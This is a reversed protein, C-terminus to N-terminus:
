KTFFSSQFARPAMQLDSLLYVLLFGDLIPLFFKGSATIAKTDPHASIAYTITQGQPSALRASITALWSSLADASKARTPDAPAPTEMIAQLAARASPASQITYVLVAPRCITPTALPRTAMVCAPWVNSNATVPATAVSTASLASKALCDPTVQHALANSLEEQGNVKLVKRDSM